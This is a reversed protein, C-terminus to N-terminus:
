SRPKTIKWQLESVNKIIGNGEVQKKFLNLSQHIHNYTLDNGTYTLFLKEPIEALQKNAIILMKPRIRICYIQYEKYLEEKLIVTTRGVNIIYTILGESDVCRSASLFENITMNLIVSSKCSSQFITNVILYSTIYDYTYKMLVLKSDYLMNEALKYRNTKSIEDLTILHKSQQTKRLNKEWTNILTKARLVKHEIDNYTNALYGCIFKLFASVYVIASTTNRTKSYNSLWDEVKDINDLFDLNNKLNLDVFVQKIKSTNELAQQNSLNGGIRTKLWNEYKKLMAFVNVTEHDNALNQTNVEFYKQYIPHTKKMKHFQLFHMDLLNHPLTVHCEILPCHIIEVETDYTKNM